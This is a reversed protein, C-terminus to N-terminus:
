LQLCNKAAMHISPISGQDDPLVRLQQSMDGAGLNIKNIYIHIYIDTKAFCDRKKYEKYILKKVSIYQRITECQSMSFCLAMVQLTLAKIFYNM